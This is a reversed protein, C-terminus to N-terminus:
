QLHLQSARRVEPDPDTRALQEIATLAEQSALSALASVGAKRAAANVSSLTQFLVTGAAPARSRAICSVLLAALDDDARELASSLAPLRDALPGSLAASVLARESPEALLQVLAAAADAGTREGLLNIAAVRLPELPDRAAGRLAPVVREDDCLALASLAVLRTAPDGHFTAETLVPVSLRDRALGLGVLAARRVDLDTDAALARLTEAARPGNARSLAEIAAVRVQGAEDDLLPRLEDELGKTQQKGLSQCAYYRVWPDADRLAERLRDTLAGAGPLQGLARVAAARRGSDADRSARLLLERAEAGDIAALGQLAADRLRPDHEFAADAFLPLASAFGFYGLLSLAARRTRPERAAALALAETQDSGLSQLAAVAAHVVRQSGDSLLAFLAPVAAVAGNRALAACALARIEASPDALCAIVADATALSVVVPLLAKRRTSDGSLLAGHLATESSRGIELLAKGAAEATDSDADLLALLLPTASELRLEGLLWCLAAKEPKDARAAAHALRRVIADSGAGRLSQQIVSASGYLQAHRACLEHLALCAVRVSSESSATLLSILPKVARRDATRGLARAAELAYRGDALLENLPEVARPDSSRGLVDIAPFARFFHPSKVCAILADVAARGGLRGLAEIASVAVNDDPHATLRALLENAARSGRRGLVHTLDALVAGEPASRAREIVAADVHEGVSSALADVTAAIRAEDGRQRQLCDLLQAAAVDGLAALAAVVERRLSWSPDSLMAILGAVDARASLEQVAASRAAHAPHRAAPADASM